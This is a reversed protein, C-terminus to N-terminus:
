TPKSAKHGPNTMITILISKQQDGDDVHTQIDGVRSLIHICVNEQAFNYIHLNKKKLDCIKVKKKTRSYLM